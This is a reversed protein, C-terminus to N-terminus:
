AFTDYRVGSEVNGAYMIAAGAPEGAGPGNMPAPGPLVRYAMRAPAAQDAAALM